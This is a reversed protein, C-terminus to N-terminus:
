VRRRAVAFRWDITALVEARREARVEVVAGSEWSWRRAEALVAMRRAGNQRGHWEGLKVRITKM